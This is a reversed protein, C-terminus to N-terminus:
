LEFVFYQEKMSSWNVALSPCVLDEDCVVRVMLPARSTRQEALGIPKDITLVYVSELYPGAKQGNQGRSKLRGYSTLAM